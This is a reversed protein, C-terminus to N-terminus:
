KGDGKFKKLIDHARIFHEWSMRRGETKALNKGSKLFLVYRKFGHGKTIEDILEATAGTPEGLGFASAVKVLDRKPVARPLLIELVGREKFQELLDLHAGMMLEERLKYTGLLAMGCGRRDHLERIVELCKIASGRQYSLFVQHLEDILFLHSSDVANFVYERLNEFSSNPSVYCARALEKTMLQM